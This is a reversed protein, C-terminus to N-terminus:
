LRGVGPVGPQRLCRSDRHRQRLLKIMHYREQDTAYARDQERPGKTDKLVRNRVGLM